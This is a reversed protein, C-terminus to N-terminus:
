RGGRMARLRAMHDRAEQSGKIQHPMRARAGAGPYSMNDSDDDGVGYGTMHRVRKGANYADHLSFRQDELPVGGGFSKKLRKGAKAVDSLSFKQDELPV